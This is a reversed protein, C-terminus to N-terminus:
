AVDSRLNPNECADLLLPILIKGGRPVSYQRTAVDGFTCSQDDM